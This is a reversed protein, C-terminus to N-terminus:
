RGQNDLLFFQISKKPLTVETKSDALPVEKKTMPNIGLVKKKDDLQYEAPNIRTLRAKDKKLGFGPLNFTLTGSAPSEGLNAILLLSKKEKDKRYVSVKVDEGFPTVLGASKWYPVWESTTYWDDMIEWVPKLQMFGINDSDVVGCPLPYINHILTLAVVEDPPVAPKGSPQFRWGYALFSYFTFPTGYQQYMSFGARFFDPTLNAYGFAAQGGWEEGESAGDSFSAIWSLSAAHHFVFSTPDADKLLNYMRKYLERTEFLNITPKIKGDKDVYGCDHYQSICGGPGSCDLYIGRLGESIMRNIGWVYYDRRSAPKPCVTVALGDGSGWRQRPLSEWEKGYLQFEPSVGAMVNTYYDPFVRCGEKSFRSVMEKGQPTLGPWGWGRTLGYQCAAYFDKSAFYGFHWVKPDSPLSKVPTAHLALTYSLPEKLSYPSDILNFELEKSGEKNIVRVYKKSQFNRDSDFTVSIGAKDGGIWVYHMFDNEWVWGKASFFWTKSLDFLDTKNGKAGEYLCAAYWGFSDPLMKFAKLYLADEEKVPIQFALNQIVVPEKGPLFHLDVRVLGDFEVEMDGVMKIRPSTNIIRLKASTETASVLELKSTEWKIEGQDTVMHLRIPSSFMEKGQNVIQSPFPLKGFQYERGWVFVSKGKVKVPSWPPPVKDSIGLKNGLWEPKEPIAVDHNAQAIVMDKDKLFVQVTYEGAPIKAIDLTYAGTRAMNSFGKLLFSTILVNNKTNRVEAMASVAPSLGPLRKADWAIELLGKFYMLATDLSFSPRSTFTVASRYLPEKGAPDAVTFTLDTTLPKTLELAEKVILSKEEGPNVTVPVERKLIEKKNKSLAVSLNGNISIAKSTFDAISGKIEIDGGLPDGLSEVKIVPAEERFYLHGFGQPNNFASVPPSWSTWKGMEKGSEGEERTAVNWDRHFNVRWLAGDKPASVGLSKFPIAIESTWISKSFTLVGAITEGSDKVQNKIIWDGNWSADNGIADYMTGTSNGIFVFFYDPRGSDPALRIEMADDSYVAGDRKTAETKPKGAVTSRFALYINEADYTVYFVTDDKTLTGGLDVFGTSAAAYKWEGEKMEGDMVPAVKTRTITM